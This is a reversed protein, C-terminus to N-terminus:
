ATRDKRDIEQGQSYSRLAQRPDWLRGMTYDALLILQVAQVRAREM